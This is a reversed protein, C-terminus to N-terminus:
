WVSAPCRLRVTDTEMDRNTAPNCTHARAHTHSSLATLPSPPQMHAYPQISPLHRTSFPSSPPSTHSLTTIATSLRADWEGYWTLECIEQWVSQSGNHRAVEVGHQKVGCTCLSAILKEHWQRKCEQIDIMLKIHSLIFILIDLELLRNPQKQSRPIETGADLREARKVLYVACVDGASMWVMNPIMLAPM